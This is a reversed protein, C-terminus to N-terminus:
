QQWSLELGHIMRVMAANLPVPLGLAEAERVVAGNIVEIETKRRAEADQLMSAKGKGAVALLSRISSVREEPDINLGKARAVASAENALADCVLLMEEFEGITGAYLGTLASTPL